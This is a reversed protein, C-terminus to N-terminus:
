PILAARYFRARSNATPENDLYEATGATNTITARASWRTGALDTLSQIECRSGRPSHLVMRVSGGADQTPPDLWIAERLRYFRVDSETVPVLFPQVANTGAVVALRWWNVLNRSALVEYLKGPEIYLVLQCQGNTANGTVELWPAAPLERLRYFRANAGAVANSFQQEGSTGAVV